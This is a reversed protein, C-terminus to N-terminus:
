PLSTFLFERSDMRIIYCSEQELIRFFNIAVSIKERKISPSMFSSVAFFLPTILIVCLITEHLHIQLIFLLKIM